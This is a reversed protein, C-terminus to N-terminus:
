AAFQNPAITSVATTSTARPTLCKAASPLGMAFGLASSPAVAAALLKGEAVRLRCAARQALEVTSARNAAPRAMAESVSPQEAATRHTCMERVRSQSVVPIMRM